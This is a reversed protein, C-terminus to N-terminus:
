CQLLLSLALSVFDSETLIGKLAGRELVPLCGFKHALLLRAAETVPYSPPVTLIETRMIRELPIAAEIADQETEPLDALQSVAVQFIDRQTVIGVFQGNDTVLPLHRIRAREMLTRAAQVSEFPSLTILQHSMIDAVTLM